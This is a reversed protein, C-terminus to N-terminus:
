LSLRAALACLPNDKATHLAAVSVYRSVALCRAIARDTLRSTSVNKHTTNPPRPCPGRAGDIPGRARTTHNQMITLPAAVTMNPKISPVIILSEAGVRADLGLLSAATM